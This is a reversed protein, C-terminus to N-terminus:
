SSTCRKAECLASAVRQIVRQADHWNICMFVIFMSVINGFGM